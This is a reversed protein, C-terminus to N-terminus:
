MMVSVRGVGGVEAVSVHAVGKPDVAVLRVREGPTGKVIATLGCAGRGAVSVREFRQPSVHVFKTLEGLFYAGNPAPEYISWYGFARIDAPVTAVAPLAPMAGAPLLAICSPVAAVGDECGALQADGAPEVIHRRVALQASAPPAPYLDTPQLTVESTTMASRRRGM